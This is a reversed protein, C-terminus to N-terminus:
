EAMAAAAASSAAAASLALFSRASASNRWASATRVGASTSCSCRRSTAQRTPRQADHGCEAALASMGARIGSEPTSVAFDALLRRFTAARVHKVSGLCAGGSAGTSVTEQRPRENGYDSIAEIVFVNGEGVIRRLQADPPNPSAEELVERNKSNGMTV